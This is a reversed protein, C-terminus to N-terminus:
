NGQAREKSTFEGEEIGGGGGSCKHGSILHRVGKRRTFGGLCMQETREKSKGREGQPIKGGRGPRAKQKYQKTGPGREKAIYQRTM